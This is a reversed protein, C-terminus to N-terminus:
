NNTMEYSLLYIFPSNWYITVENTSFSQDNDAYCKAGATGSLTAKAYPDELNQNPGGVVMGPIVYSTVIAPRHHVHKASVSGYGTVYCYSVPNQGLLYSMQDYAAANYKEDGTIRYADILIRANNCVTMNSGWSYTDLSSMYGDSIAQNYLEDAKERISTKIADVYKTDQLKEDMALYAMNGYSNVQAWGYGHMVYTDLIGSFYDKCSKDGTARYLEIAAWYREDPDRADPYEGTLIDDPNKFGKCEPHEVLYKWAKQAASLCKSAFEKDVDKYVVSARAMVAAFDGTATNSIPSLYLDAKEEDAMVFSPFEKCSIKHYVGGTSEDQMQLMWELEYRAEDLIDPIGNGSEPIGFSDGYESAWIDPTEEYALLLDEVAVAGAVVYRGYDGADHWGGRVAKKDETGYIYADTDHCVPHAYGGVINEDLETGCRQSYLFLVSSKLMDNYIDDGVEFPYSVLGDATRIEFTGTKDFDSFDAQAVDEGAGKSNVVKDFTGSYVKNESSIDVIDFATGASVRAVATKRASPLFGVQNLNIDREVDETVVETIGSDDILTLSVNDLKIVHAAIPEQGDPTGLNFCMRPAPDSGELMTFTYSYTNMEENVEAFNDVYAHYDGGNIQIRSEVSRPIESSMDFKFEYVGGQMLAFGDYYVQVSYNLKGTDQISIKGEGAPATMTAKGGKALYTGWKALESHFDGNALMNVGVEYKEEAETDEAPTVPEEEETAEVETTTETIESSGETVVAKGCASITLMSLVVLLVTSRIFSTKKM